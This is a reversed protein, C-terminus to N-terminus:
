VGTAMRPTMIHVSLLVSSKKEELGINQACFKLIKKSDLLSSGETKIYFSIQLRRFSTYNGLHVNAVIKFM